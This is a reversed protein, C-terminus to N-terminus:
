CRTFRSRNRPLVKGFWCAASIEGGIRTASGREDGETGSGVLIKVVNHKRKKGIPNLEADIGLRFRMRAGDVAIKKKLKYPLQDSIQGIFDEDYWFHKEVDIGQEALIGYWFFDKKAELSRVDKLEDQDLM